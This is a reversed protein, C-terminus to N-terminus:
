GQSETAPKKKLGPGSQHCIWARGLHELEALGASRKIRRVGIDGGHGGFNQLVVLILLMGEILLNGAPEEITVQVRQIIGVHIKKFGVQVFKLHVPGIKVRERQGVMVDARAPHNKGTEHLPGRITHGQGSIQQGRLFEGKGSIVAKDGVAM